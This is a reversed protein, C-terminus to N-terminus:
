FIRLGSNGSILNLAPEFMPFYFLFFFQFFNPLAAKASCVRNKRVAAVAVAHGDDDDAAAAAATAAVVKPTSQNLQAM